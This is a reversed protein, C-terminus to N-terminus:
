RLGMYAIAEYWEESHETGSEKDFEKMATTLTKIVAPESIVEHEAENVSPDTHKRELTPYERRGDRYALEYRDHLGEHILTSVLLTPDLALKDNVFHQSNIFISYGHPYVAPDAYAYSRPSADWRKTFVVNTENRLFRKYVQKFASNKTFKEIFTKMEVSKRLSSHWLVEKGDPDIFNIPNNIVFCYPSFSSYKAQLPDLSFWRGLRPDQIRAGFNYANGEDYIENLKEKGMLGYRYSGAASFGRGPMGMGFPYYDNATAVDAEYYDIDDDSDTDVGIKRDSVTVLVNGLHNSLEYNTHVRAFSDLLLGNSTGSMPETDFLGWDAEEVDRGPRWIGIRSSGYLHVETQSLHGGNLTDIENEYVAMVNGSADRVYWTQLSPLDGAQDVTKGIRNGGADYTYYITVGTSKEISSIKGYVNWSIETIHEAQDAVLNGIADYTYNDDEQDDIDVAYNGTLAPDDNVHRLRNNTLRGGGDRNYAYLLSDMGVPSNGHRIYSLINGNADYGVREKYAQSGSPTFVNTGAAMGSYANMAKIRNLLDYRYGYLVPAGVKPINVLMSAINGNFLSNGTVIGDTLAPLGNAVTAFPYVSNNIPQYDVTNYNLSFGYADRATRHAVPGDEGMDFEGGTTDTSNVGKIWGQLTYAYDIGQVGLQGIETRALPGHKYYSYRAQREWYVYDHSTYAEILKNEADYEYRHYFQDTYGTQYAVENVKGSILDYKYVMKKFANGDTEHMIGKFYHQLLTDVNGHIDYSYYTASAYAPDTALDTLTTYSVRNRLNQQCLTSPPDCLDAALDYYTNTIQERSNAADAVWDALSAPDQSIAQTMEDGTIQGVETIRGLEDYLTYSYQDDAAQKANQSVVLRGLRDYWFKSLGGDPSIQAVVQNLTNYRYETALTHDPVEPGGSARAAAVTTHWTNIAPEDLYSLDVGEPPVTKVLNGAQDYYYLTYHYEAVLGRVTFTEGPADVLCKSRYTSDFNDYQQEVYTNYQETAANLALQVIYDCPEGEEPVVSPFLPEGIGCLRPPMAPADVVSASRLRLTLPKVPKGCINLTDSCNDNAWQELQGYGTFSTRFYLNFFGTFVKDCDNPLRGNNFAYFARRAVKLNDCTLPYTTDAPCIDLSIGCKAFIAEVDTWLHKERPAFETNYLQAFLDHCLQQPMSYISYTANYKALFNQLRTCSDPACVDLDRNCLNLYYLAIDYYTLTDGFVHNFYRAFAVQCSDGFYKSPDPYLKKFEQYVRDLETCRIIPEKACVGPERGCYLQYVAMIQAYTYTVDFEENFQETFLSNCPGDESHLEYWRVFHNSFSTLKKCDFSSKCVGLNAGCAKQYLLAIEEYTYSTGLRDNVFWVFCDHCFDADEPDLGSGLCADDGMSRYAKLLFDLTKCEIQPACADLNIGCQHYLSDIQWAELSTAMLANFYDVWQELCDSNLLVGRHCNHWSDLVQQLQGCDFHSCVDLTGGCLKKYMDVLEDWTYNTGFWDNFHDTFLEKCNLSDSVGPGYRHYFSDIIYQFRECDLEPQCVDPLYGCSQMFLAQIQAFTYTTGLTDNFFETFLEECSNGYLTDGYVNHFAMVISDLRSCPLETYGDCAEEFQLYDYWSKQLGTHSNMFAAFMNNEQVEEEDEPEEHIVTIGTYLGAFEAKLAKYEKCEICTKVPANCTLIGPISLPPDYVICDSVGNCGDILSDLLGQRVVIGHQYEIFESLTGQYGLQGKEAQLDTLRACLCSDQLQVAIGDSVPSQAHYPPPYKIMYPHCLATIAIGSDLFVKQIVEEFSTPTTGQEERRVTSSGFPHSADSGRLCVDKLGAVIVDLLEEKHPHEAIQDCNNLAAVWMAIYDNCTSDFLGDIQGGAYQDAAAQAALLDGSQEWSGMQELLPNHDNFGGFRRQYHNNKLLDYPIAPFQNELMANVMSDKQSLYLTRFIRWVVNWDGTCSNLVYPPKEAISNICNMNGDQCNVSIWALQWLTKGVKYNEELYREMLNRYTIYAPDNFFPDLDLINTMYGAADAAAWTDTNEVQLDWDYSEALHEEAYKLKPYEPHHVLLSPTWSDKFQASFDEPSAIDLLPVEGTGFPVMRYIDEDREGLENKYYNSNDTEDLPDRYHNWTKNFINYPRNSNMEYETYDDTYDISGTIFGDENLDTDLTAYQGQDPTMDNLMMERILELKNTGAYPDCLQECANRAENYSARIQAIYSASDALAVGIEQLFRDRFDEYDGLEALCTDCTMNCTTSDLMVQYNEDYFDQLTKCINKIAFVSDRYWDQAHKSLTLIKTISYEGELLYCVTDVLLPPPATGCSTDYNGFSFNQRRIVVPPESCTGTIRIELDYYCDYCVTQGEPNCAAIEASEPYLEYSFTHPGAKTVLLTTSAEISRDKVRNVGNALLNTTLYRTKYSTLTDLSTPPPGALATAITRGHMDVYSVSYQGNADRVMNKFYHANDGVETGFLADLQKQDATGYFYKTEHRNGLQYVPGVGGQAAIRGTADPTYRTEAYPYGFGSPIYRHFDSNVLGNNESYYQSAGSASDLIPTSAGCISSDAPVLDYLDKPYTDAEFRNFNKAFEMVKDLTPAPLINIAPRGQYDYLTEAIVTTKTVNDKTVTQRSRQSGDFFQAVTKHKGDEAYSTSVQWNLDPEYGSYSYYTIVGDHQKDSSWAGEVIRGDERYQVARVRYFLYGSGDYLLPIAYGSAAPITVRSSNNRFILTDNFVLGSGDDKKYRDLAEADVWAWEVDYHTRGSMDDDTWYIFLEDVTGSASATPLSDLVGTVISTCSFAYDRKVQMRNELILVDMISAWASSHTDIGVIKVKVKRANDFVYYSRPTYEVGGGVKYRIELPRNFLTDTNGNMDTWMIDISVTVTFDAPIAIDTEEDLLLSITNVYKDKAPDVILSYWTPDYYKVDQTERVENLAIEGLNGRFVSVLVPDTAALAANTM